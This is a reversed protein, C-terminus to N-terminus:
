GQWGALDGVARDVYKIGNGTSRLNNQAATPPDKVVLLNMFLLVRASLGFESLSEM